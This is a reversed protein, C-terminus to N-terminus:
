LAASSASSPRLAPGRCILARTWMSVMCIRYCSKTSSISYSVMAQLLCSRGSGASPKGEPTKPHARRGVENKPPPVAWDQWRYPSRLAPTFSAGVVDAKEQDRAEQADLIRLFLIWTLKPVYQLASACNSRRMVDCINKVFAPLSQM